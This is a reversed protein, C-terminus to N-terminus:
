PLLTVRHNNSINGIDSPAIGPTFTFGAVYFSTGVLYPLNPIVLNPFGDGNGDLTGILNLLGPSSFSLIFLPDFDLPLFRSDIPIGFAASFSAACVFITGAPRDARFQMTYTTGIRPTSGPQDKLVADYYKFNDMESTQYGTMGVLGPGLVTGLPKPGITLEFTGNQDADTYMWAQGDLTILRCTAQLTGGPIDAYVSAGYNREYVFCRDFDAAAGNNQIKCMVLNNDGPTGPHRSTLGAFQVGAGVFYFDGEITCDNLNYGDKTIYAWTTGSTAALRGNIVQFAGNQVTWGPVSAGNPYNFADQYVQASSWASLVGVALFSVCRM